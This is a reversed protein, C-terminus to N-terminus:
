PYRASYGFARGIPALLAFLVRQVALPPFPLAYDDLHARAIVASRLINPMGQKNTKGAAALAYVTELFDEFRGAPEYDVVTRIPGDSSFRHPTGAPIELKAPADLVRDVKGVRFNVRGQRLDWREVLKPHVHTPASSKEATMELQLLKGGSEAATVLFTVTEGTAPNRIVEGARAM